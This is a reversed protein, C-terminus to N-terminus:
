RHNSLMRQLNSAEHVLQLLPAVIHPVLDVIGSVLNVSEAQRDTDIEIGSSIQGIIM